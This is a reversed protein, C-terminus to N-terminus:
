GHHAILSEAETVSARVKAKLENLQEQHEVEFAAQYTAEIDALRQVLNTETKCEVDIIAIEIQASKSDPLVPVWGDQTALTVKSEALCDTWDQRAQTWEPDAKALTESEFLGRDAISSDANYAIYEHILDDQINEICDLLAEDYGDVTVAAPEPNLEPSRSDDAPVDYGYKAVSDLNWVGYRRDTVRAERQWNIETAPPYPFAKDAMCDQAILANAHQVTQTEQESLSYETLPLTITQAERDLIATADPVNPADAGCAVLTVVLVGALSVSGCMRLQM